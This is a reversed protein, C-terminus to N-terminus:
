ANSPASGRHARGKAREATIRQALSSVYLPLVILAILLGVGIFPNDQWWLNLANM